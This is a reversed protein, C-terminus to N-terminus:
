RLIRIFYICASELTCKQNVLLGHTRREKQLVVEINKAKFKKYLETIFNDHVSFLSLGENKTIDHMLM